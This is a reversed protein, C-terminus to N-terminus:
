SAPHMAIRVDCEAGLAPQATWATAPSERDSTCGEMRMADACYRFLSHVVKVALTRVLVAVEDVVQRILSKPRIKLRELADDHRCGLIEVLPGVPIVAGMM